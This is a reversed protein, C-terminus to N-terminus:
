KRRFFRKIIEVLAPQSSVPTRPIIPIDQKDLKKKLDAITAEYAAKSTAGDKELKSIIDKMGQVTKSLEDVKAVLTRRDDAFDEYKVHWANAELYWQEASKVKYMYENTSATPLYKLPNVRVGLRYLSWHLHPGTVKGSSGMIGVKSGEKVQVNNKTLRKSLHALKHTGTAGKIVVMIGGAKPQNEYTLRGAEPAYVTKDFKASFDIGLHTLKYGQTIPVGQDTPRRM